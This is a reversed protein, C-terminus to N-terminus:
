KLSNRFQDPLPFAPRDVAASVSLCVGPRASGASVKRRSKRALGAGAIEGSNYPGGTFPPSLATVSTPGVSPVSFYRAIRVRKAPWPALPKNRKRNWFAVDCPRAMM